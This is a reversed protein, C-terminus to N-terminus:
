FTRRGAILMRNLLEIDNKHMEKEHMSIRTKDGALEILRRHALDLRCEICRGDTSVLHKCTTTGIKQTM